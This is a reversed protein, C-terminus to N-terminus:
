VLDDNSKRRFYPFKDLEDFRDVIGILRDGHPRFYYYLDLVHKSLHNLVLIIDENNAIGRNFQNFGYDIRLFENDTSFAHFWDEIEIQWKPFSIYLLVWSRRSTSDIIRVQSDEHLNPISHEMFAANIVSVDKKPKQKRPLRTFTRDIKDKKRIKQAM